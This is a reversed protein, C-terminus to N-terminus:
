VDAYLERGYEGRETMERLAQAVSECDQKYTMGFWRDETRLCELTIANKHLLRNIFVPLLYEETLPEKLERYFEAFGSELMSLFATPVAWMNMSVPTEIDLVTDGVAAGTPTKVIGHTELLDHVFDKEDVACLGRTVAGNDSLTNKLIFGAMAFETDTHEQVLYDHLSVYASKGYYDDANIIAFPTTIERRACLVAHGTGWPKRRGEPLPFPIDDIEQYAYAFEVGARRCVAELRDGITRRFLEEIDHRIVFVIKNFGARMADHISYDMIIEGNPGVPQLQKIGEGFRSGFGAAM